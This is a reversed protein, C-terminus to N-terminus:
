YACHKKRVAVKSSSDYIPATNDITSEVATDRAPVVTGAHDGM